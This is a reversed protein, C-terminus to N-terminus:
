FNDFGYVWTYMVNFKSVKEMRKCYSHSDTSFARYDKYQFSSNSELEFVYGYVTFVIFWL